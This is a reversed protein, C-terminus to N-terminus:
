SCGCKKAIMGNVNAISVRGDRNVYILKIYDYETPHCCYGIEPNSVKHAARMIKSHGTEALNFHHANYHCDGRCMYANYRPPAVIWDWGIKEFEIELDYLCCGKSQAEANCVPKAHSRRKRSGKPRTSLQLRMNDVDATTQQPHLAVNRGDLMAKVFIGQIPSITFWSKVTDIPLQISIRESGKTAFIGSTVMEGMSGDENKEYVQVQVDQLMGSDKAPIEISVTLTAQLIDSRELDNTVDFKAVLQSPNEGYSPDKATYFSMEVGMDQEDKELLDRYMELYVSKMEPDMPKLGKPAEKMNLQDLIENKLYETRHQKMKEICVGSNTCNFTLGHPLSLLFIFVPLSSAM